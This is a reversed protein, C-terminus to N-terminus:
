QHRVLEIQGTELEENLAAELRQMQTSAPPEYPRLVPQTREIVVPPHGQHLALIGDRVEASHLTLLTSLTAFLATVMVAAVALVIWLPLKGQNRRSGLPVAAWRPSIDDDPRPRVHRLTEYIAPASAPATSRATPCQGTSAEFGLSLCTLM